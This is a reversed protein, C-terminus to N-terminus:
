IERGERGAARKVGAAPPHHIAAPDLLGPLLAQVAVPGRPAPQGDLLLGGATSLGSRSTRSRCFCKGMPPASKPRVRPTTLATSPILKVILDPSVSPSTPSDPQPLVVVDFSTSAASVGVAPVM